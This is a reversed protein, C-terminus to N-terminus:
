KSYPREKLHPFLPRALGELIEVGETKWLYEEAFHNRGPVPFCYAKWTGEIRTVALVMVQRHLMRRYYQRIFPVTM